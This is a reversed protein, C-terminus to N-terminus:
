RRAVSPLSPRTSPHRLVEHAQHREEKGKRHEETCLWSPSKGSLGITPPLSLSPTVALSSVPSKTPHHKKTPLKLMWNWSAAASMQEGPGVPGEGLNSQDKGSSRSTRGGPEFPGRILYMDLYLYTSGIWRVTDTSKGDVAQRGARRGAEAGLLSTILVVRGPGGGDDKQEATEIWDGVGGIVNGSRSYAYIGPAFPNVGCPCPPMHPARIGAEKKLRM